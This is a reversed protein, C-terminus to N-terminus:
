RSMGKRFTSETLSSWGNDGIVGAEVINQCLSELLVDLLQYWGFMVGMKECRFILVLNDVLSGYLDGLCSVISADLGLSGRSTEGEGEIDGLGASEDHGEGVSRLKEVAEVTEVTESRDASVRDEIPEM